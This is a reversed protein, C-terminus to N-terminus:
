IRMMASLTASFSDYDYFENDAARKRYRTLLELTLPQLLRYRMNASATVQTDRGRPRLQFEPDEGRFTREALKLDAGVSTRNSITLNTGFSAQQQLYYSTGVNGRAAVSRGFGASFGLRSVPKYGVEGSYTIGAFPTVGPLQPAVDTYAVEVQASIRTGVSRSLRLGVSRVETVDKAPGAPTLVERARRISALSGFLQADGLAPRRYAIGVRADIISQDRDRRRESNEIRFFGASAAPYFGSPRPCSMRLSYDQATSVNRIIEGLDELDSQAQFLSGTVEARCRPGARLDAGGTFAVDQRNLFTFRDNWAYGAYGNAFIRQRALRRSYDLTIRPAISLNDTQGGGDNNIRLLNTDYVEVVALSLEFKNEQAHAAPAFAALGMIGATAAVIRPVSMGGESGKGRTAGSYANAVSRDFSAAGTM